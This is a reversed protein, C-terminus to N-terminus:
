PVLHGVCTNGNADSNTTDPCIVSTWTAGTLTAPSLNVGTFNVKILQANTFNTGTMVSTDLFGVKGLTAGTFNAGSVNVSFAFGSMSSPDGITANSFNTNHFNTNEVKAANGFSVGSLNAGSFDSGTLTSGNLLAGHMDVGAFNRYPLSANTFNAGVLNPMFGGVTTGGSSTKDWNLPTTGTPCTPVSATDIVQITGKANVFTGTNTYCGHITNGDPIAARVVAPGVSGIAVGVAVAAILKSQQRAWQGIRGTSLKM